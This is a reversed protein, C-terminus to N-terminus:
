RGEELLTLHLAHKNSTINKKTIWYSKFRISNLEQQKKASRDNQNTQPNNNNRPKNESHTIIDSYGQHM